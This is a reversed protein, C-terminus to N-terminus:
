GIKLNPNDGEANAGIGHQGGEMEAHQHLFQYRSHPGMNHALWGLAQERSLHNVAAASEYSYLGAEIKAAARAELEETSHNAEILYLDYGPATIGDLTGTDTAYFLKENGCEIIYGCNPVNHTLKVPRVNLDPRYIYCTDPDIWEYVDINRKDVGANVLPSVMWECCGFRLSPRARHLAQITSEKFHDGHIHTLLVLQLERSYPKLKKWSVGCDILINRNIIVANGTSGTALIQYNIM